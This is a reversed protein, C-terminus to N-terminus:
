YLFFLTFLRNDFVVLVSYQVLCVASWQREQLPVVEKEATAWLKRRKM